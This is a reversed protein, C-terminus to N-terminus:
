FKILIHLYHWGNILQDAFRTNCDYFFTLNRGQFTRRLLATNTSTHVGCSWLLRVRRQTFDGLNAQGVTKLHNAVDTTFAMVQLLVRDHQQAATTYLIQRTHTVVHHTTTQIRSTNLITLVAPPRIMPFERILKDRIKPAGWSPYEKKIGLITREVQYPLKNAHRYPRRSRDNLGELGCTKYREYIKYGTVRSIGFERCLPAMKEGELLRAIFRFREDMPRCTRWPM